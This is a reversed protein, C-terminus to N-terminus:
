FYQVFQVCFTKLTCHLVPCNTANQNNKKLLFFALLTVSRVCFFLCSIVLKSRGVLRIGPINKSESLFCSYRFFVWALMHLVDCLFAQSAQPNLGPGKKSHSLLALCQVAMTGDAWLYALSFSWNETFVSYHRLICYHTCKHMEIHSLPGGFCLLSSLCHQLHCCLVEVSSCLCCYLPM